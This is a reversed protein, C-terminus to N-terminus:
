DSSLGRVRGLWYGERRKNHAVALVRVEVDLPVFVVAFPFRKLLARRLDLDPCLTLRPFLLPRERVHTFVLDAEHLFEIALGSRQQEYWDAADSLEALAHRDFTLNKLVFWLSTGLYGPCGDV